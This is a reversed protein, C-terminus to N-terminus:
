ETFSICVFKNIQGSLGYEEPLKQNNVQARIIVKQQANKRSKEKANSILSCNQLKPVWVSRLPVTDCFSLGINSHM